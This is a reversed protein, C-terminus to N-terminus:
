KKTKKKATKKTTKKKATKKAATKKPAEPKPEPDVPTEERKEPTEPATKECKEAEYEEKTIIEFIAPSVLTGELVEHVRGTAKNRILM